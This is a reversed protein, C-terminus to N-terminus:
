RDNTQKRLQMKLSECSQYVDSFNAWTRWVYVTDQMKVRISTHETRSNVPLNRTKTKRTPEMRQPLSADLTLVPARFVAFSKLSNLRPTVHMLQVLGLEAPLILDLTRDFVVYM